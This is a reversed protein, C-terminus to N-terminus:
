WSAWAVLLVKRGRLSGLRFSEGQWDSLTLEPAHASTLAKGGSEPGLAWLDADPERVLPMSLHEAITALEITDSVPDPWPICRDNKCAGEPRLEWGTQQEFERRDVTASTSIM